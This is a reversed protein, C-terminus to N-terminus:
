WGRARWTEVYPGERGIFTDIGHGPCVRTDDPLAFLRDLSGMVEAFRAPNGGTAGPGGPFLTDGSFLFGRARLCISGPTHGPTHLVGVEIEGVRLVSGDSLAVTAVPMRSADGPHAYVPCGLAEVLRPLAQVHDPHGHTEVIGVVELGDVDHLLREPEAAGDVILAANTGTCHIVYVNNDFGGVSRKTVRMCGDPAYAHAPGGPEVAGFEATAPPRPTEGRAM